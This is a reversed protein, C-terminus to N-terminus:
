AAKNQLYDMVIKRKKIVEHSESNIIKGNFAENIKDNFSRTNDWEPEEINGKAEVIKGTNTVFCWCCDSQMISNQYILDHNTKSLQNSNPIAVPLLFEVGTNDIALFVNFLKSQSQIIPYNYFIPDIKYYKVDNNNIIWILRVNYKIDLDSIFVENKQPRRIVLTSTSQLSSKTPELIHNNLNLM